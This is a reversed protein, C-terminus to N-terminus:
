GSLGKPIIIGHADLSHKALEFVRYFSKMCNGKECKYAKFSIHRMQHAKMNSYSSFNKPCFKCMLDKIGLHTKLHM